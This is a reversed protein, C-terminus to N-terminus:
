DNKKNIELYGSVFLQQLSEELDIRKESDLEFGEEALKTFLKDYSFQHKDMNEMQQALPFSLYMGKLPSDYPELLVDEFEM